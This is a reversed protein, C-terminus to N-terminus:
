REVKAKEWLNKLFETREKATPPRTELLRKIEERKDELRTIERSILQIIEYGHPSKVIGSTPNEESLRSVAADFESGRYGKRYYPIRGGSQRTLRDQSYEKALQAFDAGGQIEKLVNEARARAEQDTRAPSVPKGPEKVPRTSILIHRIDCQIGNEGYAKEFAVKIEGETVKRAKLICKEELIRYAIDQRKKAKYEELSMGQRALSEVFQDMNNKYIARARTEIEATLREEVEQPNIDIKLRKGEDELLIRNIYEELKSKGLTAFLYATYDQVTLDRGDVRAMVGPPLSEEESGPTKSPEPPPAGKQPSEAKAAEEAPCPIFVMLALLFFWIRAFRM